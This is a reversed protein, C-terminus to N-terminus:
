MPSYRCYIGTKITNELYRGADPLQEGIREIADKIRRRVNVRAKEAASAARRERGGLGFARSLERTIFDLEERLADMRGQDGLETAEELEDKLDRVRSEYEARAQPDLMPGADAADAAEGSGSLDLVHLDRDPEVILRAVMALGKSAKLTSSLAGYRVEYVDGHSEISITERPAAPKATSGSPAIAVPRMWLDTMVLRASETVQRAKDSDGLEEYTGALAMEIRAACPRARMRTAIALAEELYDRAAEIEGLHRALRGLGLAVPGNWTSGMLGVSACEHRHDILAEYARRALADDKAKIALNGIAYISFRDGGDFVRQVMPKNALLRKADEPTDVTFAALLPRIFFEAEAMGHAFAYKLQEEIEALPTAEDSEWECLIGFHQLPLTVTAEMDGARAALERARGLLKIADPFRGEMTAQMARASAARWQYHPLDIRGAIHECADIADAMMAQDGVESADIMLRLNSRFRGPIDGFEAALEGFERNLPMREDPPAFDMLASIASRLVNYIVEKDNTTRALAIAERAMDMPESPKVAPQLAAALRALVRARMAADSDPLADLCERLMGVLNRDISAVVIASGHTLAAEAMLRSDDLTKAIAFADSCYERGEAIDGSLLMAEACELLLNAREAPEFKPGEGFAAVATKFLAASDDFALRARARRAAHRWADIADIRHDDGAAALHTALESWRDEDGAAVREKLQSAFRTHLLSRDAASLDYYIVDRHLSHSFRRRGDPLAVVIGADVAANIIDAVADADENVLAALDSISFERGLVSAQSLLEVTNKPLLAVQQHIVQQLSEPLEPASDGDRLVISMVETLFLPNGSTTEYLIRVLEEDDPQGSRELFDRVDNESLRPPRLVTADKATRWLPEMNSAAKADTERFTGIVLLPMSEVHRCIHHLLHLSDSDAAHLDELVLLLPKSRANADLLGRVSELLRFRAQDPNVEGHPSAATVMEPLILGLSSLSTADVNRENVLSRLLQTWPWYAPAGGAEWAFGWCAPIGDSAAQNAAYRALTTKGIGPEGAILLVSGRGDRLSTIADSIAVTEAARGVFTKNNASAQM